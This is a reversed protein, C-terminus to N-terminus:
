LASRSVLNGLGSLASLSPNIVLSIQFPTVGLHHHAVQLTEMGCVNAAVFLERGTANRASVKISVGERFMTKTQKM